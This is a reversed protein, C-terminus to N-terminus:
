SSANPRRSSVTSAPPEHQRQWRAHFDLNPRLRDVRALAEITQGRQDFRLESELWQAAMQEHEEIASSVDRLQKKPVSATKTNQSIPKLGAGEPESAIDIGSGRMNLDVRGLEREQQLADLQAAGLVALAVAAPWSAGPLAAQM